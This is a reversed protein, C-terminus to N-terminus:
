GKRIFRRTVPEFNELHLTRSFFDSEVPLDITIDIKQQEAKEIL